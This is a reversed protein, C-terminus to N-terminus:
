TIFQNLAKLDIVPRFGGTKKPVVFIHSYFGPTAPDAPILARKTILASIEELLTARKMQERPLQIFKPLASLPPM